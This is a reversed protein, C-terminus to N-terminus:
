GHHTDDRSRLLLEMLELDRPEVVHQSWRDGPVHVVRGGLEAVVISEEIPVEDYTAFIKHLMAASFGMPTQAVALGERGRHELTGDPRVAKLTDPLDWALVAADAGAGIAAALAHFQAVTALPRAIDHILIVETGHPVQALANRVSETRTAGGPVAVQVQPGDWAFGDPLALIPPGVAETALRVARDVLREGALLAFQKASGF